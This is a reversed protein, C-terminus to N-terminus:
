DVTGSPLLREGEDGPLNPEGFRLLDVTLSGRQLLM